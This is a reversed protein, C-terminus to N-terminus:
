SLAIMLGEFESYMRATTPDTSNRTPNAHLLPLSLPVVVDFVDVTFEVVVVDDDGAAETGFLM